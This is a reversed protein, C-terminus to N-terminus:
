GALVKGQNMGLPQFNFTGQENRALMLKSQKMQGVAMTLDRQIQMTAEYASMSRLSVKTSFLKQLGRQARQLSQSVELQDAMKEIHLKYRDLKGKADELAGQGMEIMGALESQIERYQQVMPDSEGYKTIYNTVTTDVNGKEGRCAGLAQEFDNIDRAKENYDAWLSELKWNKGVWRAISMGWVEGTLALSPILKWFILAMGIAILLGLAKGVIPIAFFGVALVAIPALVLSAGAIIKKLDM